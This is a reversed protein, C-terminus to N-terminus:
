DGRGNRIFLTLDLPQDDDITIDRVALPCFHRECVIGQMVRQRVQRIASQKQVAHSMDKSKGMPVRAIFESHQEDIEILKLNDIVTQAM